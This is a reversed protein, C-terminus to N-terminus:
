NNSAAMNPEKLAGKIGDIPKTVAKRVRDVATSGVEGAAKLAGDTAAAAANEASVGLEKAGEIAGAVLGTAAAGVDGGVRATDRVAVHATHRITDLAATGADKSGRLVGLM